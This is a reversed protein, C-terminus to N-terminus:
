QDLQIKKEMALSCSHISKRLGCVARVRQMTKRNERKIPRSPWNEFIATNFSKLLEERMQMM